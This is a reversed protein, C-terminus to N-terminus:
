IMAARAELRVSSARLREEFTIGSHAVTFGQSIDAAFGATPIFKHLPSHDFAALVFVIASGSLPSSKM